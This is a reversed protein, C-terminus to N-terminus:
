ICKKRKTAICICVHVCFELLGPWFFYIYTNGTVQDERNKTDFFIGVRFKTKCDKTFIDFDPFLLANLM